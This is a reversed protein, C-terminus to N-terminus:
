LNNRVYLRNNVFLVSSVDRMLSLVQDISDGYNGCIKASRMKDWWFFLDYLNYGTVREGWGELLFFLIKVDKRLNTELCRGGRETKGPGM